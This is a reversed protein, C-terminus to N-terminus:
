ATKGRRAIGVLGLLGSAFLWVAAPVPVVPGAYAAGDNNSTGLSANILPYDGNVLTNSGGLDDIAYIKGNNDYLYLRGTNDFWSAGFGKDNAPDLLGALDYDTRVGTDPDLSALNGDAVGTHDGGWLIGTTPHAAWDAVSGSDGTINRMTLDLGASTLDVIYLTDGNGNANSYSLYMDDGDVSVDGANYNYATPTGVPQNAPLGPNGLGLVTGASDITVIQGETDGNYREWGYLLGDTSRFGLNNIQTEGTPEIDTGFTFTSGAEDLLVPELTSPNDYIIVPVGDLAFSSASATGAAGGYLGLALSFAGATSLVKNRTSGNGTQIYRDM